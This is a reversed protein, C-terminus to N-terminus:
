VKVPQPSLFCLGFFHFSQRSQQLSLLSDQFLDLFLLLTTDRLHWPNLWRCGPQIFELSLCKFYELACYIDSMSSAYLMIQNSGFYEPPLSPKSQPHVPMPLQMPSGDDGGHVSQLCDSTPNLM